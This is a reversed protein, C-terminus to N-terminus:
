RILTVPSGGRPRLWARPADSNVAPNPPLICRMETVMTAARLIIAAALSASHWCSARSVSLLFFVWGIINMPSLWVALSNLVSNRAEGFGIFLAMWILSAAILATFTRLFAM